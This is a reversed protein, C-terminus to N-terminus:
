NMGVHEEIYEAQYTRCTVCQQYRINLRNYGFDATIHEDDNIFKMHCKSCNVYKNNSETEPKDQNM